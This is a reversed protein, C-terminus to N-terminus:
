VVQLLACSSSLFRKSAAPSVMPSAVSFAGHSGFIRSLYCFLFCEFVLRHFVRIKSTNMYLVRNTWWFYRRVFEIYWIVVHIGSYLTSVSADFHVITHPGSLVILLLSQGPKVNASLNGFNSVVDLAEKSPASNKSLCPRMPDCPSLCCLIHLISSASQMELWIQWIQM